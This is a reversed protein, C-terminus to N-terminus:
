LGVTGYHLIATEIDKSRLAIQYALSLMCETTALNNEPPKPSDNIGAGRGGGWTSTTVPEMALTCLASYVTCQVFYM